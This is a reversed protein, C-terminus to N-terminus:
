EDCSNNLTDDYFTDNQENESDDEMDSSIDDNSAGSQGEEIFDSKEDSIDHQSTGVEVANTVDSNDETTGSKGEDDNLWGVAELEEATFDTRDILEVCRGGLRLAEEYLELSKELSLDKQRVSTVIEELRDKLRSYSNQDDM